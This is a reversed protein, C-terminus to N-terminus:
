RTPWAHVRNDAGAEHTIQRQASVQDPSVFVVRISRPLTEEDKGSHEIAQLRPHLYPAAAKAMELRVALDQDADRMVQLMFELPAIGGANLKERLAANIKNQAGKKRGAGNRKGGHMIGELGQNNKM